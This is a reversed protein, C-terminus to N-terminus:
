LAHLKGMTHISLSLLLAPPFHCYLNTLSAFSSIFFFYNLSCFCSKTHRHLTLGLQIGRTTYTLWFTPFFLFLISFHQYVLSFSVCCPIKKNELLSASRMVILMQCNDIHHQASNNLVECSRCRYWASDCQLCHSFRSKTSEMGDLHYM